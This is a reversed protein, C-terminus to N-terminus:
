KKKNKVLKGNEDWEKWNGIPIGDKYSKESKKQGNKYWEKWLGDEFGNHYTGKIKLKGNSYKEEFSEFEKITEFKRDSRFYFFTTPMLQNAEILILSDADLRLINYETTGLMLKDSHKKYKTKFSQSNQMFDAINNGGFTIVIESKNEQKNTDDGKSIQIIMESQIGNEKRHLEWTGILGTQNKQGAVTFCFFFIVGWCFIFFLVKQGAGLSANEKEFKAKEVEKIESHAKEIQQTSLNRNEIENQAAFVAEPQYDDKLKTVIELLESDSKQEMVDIFNNTMKPRKFHTLVHLAHATQHKHRNVPAWLRGPVMTHM